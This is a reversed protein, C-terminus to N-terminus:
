KSHSCFFPSICVWILFSIDTTDVLFNLQQTKSYISITFAQNIVTYNVTALQNLNYKSSLSNLHLDLSKM